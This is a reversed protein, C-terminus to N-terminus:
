DICISVPSCSDFLVQCQSGQNAVNNDISCNMVQVLLIYQFGVFCAQVILKNFLTPKAESSCNVFWIIGYGVIATVASCLTSLGIFFIKCSQQMLPEFFDEDQSYTM